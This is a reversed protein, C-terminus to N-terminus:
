KAAIARSALVDKAAALTDKDREEIRRLVLAPECHLQIRSYVKQGPALEIGAVSEPGHLSTFLQLRPKTFYPGDNGKMGRQGLLAHLAEMTHEILLVLGQSRNEPNIMVDYFRGDSSPTIQTEGRQGRFLYTGEIKLRLYEALIERDTPGGMEPM